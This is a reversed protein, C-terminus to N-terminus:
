LPAKDGLHAADELVKVQREFSLSAKLDKFFENKKLYRFYKELHNRNVRGKEGNYYYDFQNLLYCFLEYNNMQAQILQVYKKATSRTLIGSKEYEHILSVEHYIYKCYNKLNEYNEAIEKIEEEEKPINPNYKSTSKTKYSKWLRNISMEDKIPDDKNTTENFYFQFIDKQKIKDYLQIHQAFLQTFLADFSNQKMAIQQGRFAEFALLVSIFAFIGTVCTAFDGWDSMNTSFRGFPFEIDTFWSTGFTLCFLVISVTIGSFFVFYLRRGLRKLQSGKRISTIYLFLVGATTVILLLLFFRLLDNPSLNIPM